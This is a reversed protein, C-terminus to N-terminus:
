VASDWSQPKGREDANSGGLTGDNLSEEGDRVAPTRREELDLVDDERRQREGEKLRGAADDTEPQTKSRM